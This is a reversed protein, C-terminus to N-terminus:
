ARVQRWIARSRILNRSSSALIRAFYFVSGRQSRFFLERFIRVRAGAAAATSAIRRRPLRSALACRNALASLRKPTRRLPWAMPPPAHLGQPECLEEDLPPLPPLDISAQARGVCLLLGRGCLRPSSNPLGGSTRAVQVPFIGPASDGNFTGVYPLGDPHRCGPFWRTERARLERAPHEEVHDEIVKM